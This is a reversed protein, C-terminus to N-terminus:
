PGQKSELPRKVINVRDRGLAGVLTHLAGGPELAGRRLQVAVVELTRGARTVRIKGWAGTVTLTPVAHLLKGIAIADRVPTGALACGLEDLPTASALRVLADPGPDENRVRLSRLQPFTRARLVRVVSDVGPLYVALSTLAHGPVREAVRPLCVRADIVLERLKPLRAVLEAADPVLRLLNHLLLVDLIEVTRLEVHDRQTKTLPRPYVALVAARLFGNAFQSSPALVKALSGLWTARHAAFLAKERRTSKGALQLAIFEGRPDGAEQLADAYVARPTLDAPDALVAALLKARTPSRGLATLRAVM